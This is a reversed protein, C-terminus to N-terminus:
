VLLRPALREKGFINAIRNDVAPAEALPAEAVPQGTFFRVLQEHERGADEYGLQILSEMYDHDFMLYSVLDNHTDTSGEILRSFFKQIPMLSKRRALLRVFHDYALVGLDQSPAIVFPEIKKIEQRSSDGAGRGRRRATVLRLAPEGYM